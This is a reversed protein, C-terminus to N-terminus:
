LLRKRRRPLPVHPRAHRLRQRRPHAKPMFTAYLGHSLAVEKIVLRATMVNDAMTLADTHLLDVEHQGSAAEHHSSKVPIGM